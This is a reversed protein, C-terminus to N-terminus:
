KIDGGGPKQFTRVLEDAKLKRASTLLTRLQDVTESDMDKSEALKTLFKEAIQNQLTSM